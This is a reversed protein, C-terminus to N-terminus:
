GQMFLRSLTVLWRGTTFVTCVQLGCSDFKNSLKQSSQDIESVERGFTTEFTQLYPTIANLSIPANTDAEPVVEELQKITEQIADRAASLSTEM